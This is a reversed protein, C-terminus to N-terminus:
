TNILTFICHVVAVPHKGMQLQCNYILLKIKGDLGLDELNDREKLKRVLVRCAGRREGM